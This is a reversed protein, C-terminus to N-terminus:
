GWFRVIGGGRTIRWLMGARRFRPSSRNPSSITREILSKSRSRVCIRIEGGPNISPMDQSIAYPGANAFRNVIDEEPSARSSDLGHVYVAHGFFAGCR